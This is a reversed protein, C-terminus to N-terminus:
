VDGDAFKDEPAFRFPQTYVGLPLMIPDGEGEWVGPVFIDAAFCM